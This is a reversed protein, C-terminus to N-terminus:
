NNNLSKYMGCIDKKIADARCILDNYEREMIKIEKKKNIISIAKQVENWNSEVFEEFSDFVQNTELSLVIM